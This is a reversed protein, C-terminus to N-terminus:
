RLVGTAPVPKLRRDFFDAAAEFARLWSSHLMFSHTENPLALTEVIIGRNRLETILGVSETFQVNRDDDGHVILVPAKWAGTRGRVQSATGHLDFGAAFLEPAFALGLVTRGGGASGGWLGIRNPDVDSRTRLYEGAGIVDIVDRGLRPNNGPANEVERFRLGYGTGRRYNVSLVIYGQHALYQNLAYQKQYYDFRHYHYGLVMQANPGGHFYLVAPYRESPRYNPPLFLQGHIRLGDTSPFIVQQPAVLAEGPFQPPAVKPALVHRQLARRPSSTLRLLETQPPAKAGAAFFALVAGDATPVPWWESMNGTTLPTPPAAHLPVRWLHRRDIDGQNSSFILERGNPLLAVHEVEFEGPTLETANGGAIPVSYLHVWGTREWPFAIRDDAGWFLQRESNLFGYFSSGIGDEARWIERGKGTKVDAVRIAWPPAPRAAGGGRQGGSAPLRVFAVRSGDPSWVPDQDRDFGPDLFLVTNATADYVGIFSHQDRLSIFALRDAKSSWRLSTANGQPAARGQDRFLQRPAGVRLGSTNGELSAGWIEGRKIYAIVRGSPSVSPWVGDDIRSPEGGSLSVIWVEEKGGDPDLTANPPQPVATGTHAGGRVFVIHSADPTYALQVLYKGDDGSFRTLQRGSYDPPGAIWINRAGLVNQVWAIMGGRPAAVLETAFPASMIQELTVRQQSVTPRAACLLAV